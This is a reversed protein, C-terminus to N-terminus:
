NPSDIRATLDMSEPSPIGQFWSSVISPSIDIKHDSGRRGVRPPTSTVSRRTFFVDETEPEVLRLGKSRPASKFPSSSADPSWSLSSRRSSSYDTFDASFIDKTTRTSIRKRWADEEHEPYSKVNVERERCDAEDM